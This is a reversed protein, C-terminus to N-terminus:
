VHWWILDYLFKQIVLTNDNFAEQSYMSYCLTYTHIGCVCLVRMWVPLSSILEANWCTWQLDWPTDHGIVVKAKTCSVTQIQPHLNSLNSTSVNRPPSVDQLHSRWVITTVCLRALHQRWGGKKGRLKILTNIHFLLSSLPPLPLSLLMFWPRACGHVREWIQKMNSQVSFFDIMETHFYDSQAETEMYVTLHPECLRLSINGPVMILNWFM